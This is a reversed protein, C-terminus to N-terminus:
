SSVVRDLVLFRQGGQERIMVVKDGAKLVNTLTSSATYTTVNRCLVLQAAGLLMQQETIISLPSPTQVTGFVINVPKSSELVSKVTKKILEMFDNADAM